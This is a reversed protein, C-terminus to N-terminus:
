EEEEFDDVYEDDYYEEEDIIGDDYNYYDGENEYNEYQFSNQVVDDEPHNIILKCSAIYLTLGLILILIFIKKM